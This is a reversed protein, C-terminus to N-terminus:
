DELINKWVVWNNALRSVHKNVQSLRAVDKGDLYSFMISTINKNMKDFNNAKPEGNNFVSKKKCCCFITSVLLGM